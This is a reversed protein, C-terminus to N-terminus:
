KAPDARYGERARVQHRQQSVLVRIRRYAGDRPTTPTYGILYQNELEERIVQLASDLQNIREISFTRGGSTDALRKVARRGASTQGDGGLTIFYAVADSSRLRREVADVNTLSAQDDGDTFAIVARRQVDPGLLDLSTLVADYLATGGSPTLGDISNALVARDTERRQVVYTQHNFAVLTTRETPKFTSLFRKVAEKLQPLSNAMSASIDLAIVLELPVEEAEFFSVTQPANNELVRFDSRQLGKVFRRKDDTVVFPVLVVDIGTAEFVSPLDRTRVSTALREGSPLVAVARVVRQRVATGGDWTCEFPRSTVQCAMVGDVFLEVRSVVAQPPEVVARLLTQGAVYGDPRPEEIVISPGQQAVGTPVVGNPGALAAATVVVGIWVRTKM